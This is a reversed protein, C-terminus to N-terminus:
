ILAFTGGDQGAGQGLNVYHKRTGFEAAALSLSVYEKGSTEGTRIWAAGIEVSNTTAFSAEARRVM